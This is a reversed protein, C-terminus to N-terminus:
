RSGRRSVSTAGDPRERSSWFAVAPGAATAAIWLVTLVWPARPWILRAHDREALGAYYPAMVAAAGYLDVAALWGALIWSWRGLGAAVAMAMAGGVLWLYWGPVSGIGHTAQYSLVGFAMEAFVCGTFLLPVKLERWKPLAMVLAVLGAADLATYIWSKLTLFSWAGFWLFTRAEVQAANLWNVALAAHTMRVLSTQDQWGTPSRGQLVNWVYWWGSAAAALGASRWGGCLLVAVALGIFNAKSLLGAGLVLGIVWWRGRRMALWLLLAALAIALSDNAVRSTDIAFGPAIALLAPALESRAAAWTLPIAVSALLMSLLRILLVRPWLRWSAALRLPQAMIWYYLPPQQAEYFAFAHDAPQRAWEPPISDLRSQRDARESAPLAFWKSRTLYPPGIWRLEYALPALRMSEDIERSIKEDFRPLGWTGTSHQIYAFHAYEDWGEWLPQLRCYFAGRAVFFLWLLWVRWPM